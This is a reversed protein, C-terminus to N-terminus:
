KFSKMTQLPSSIWVAADETPEQPPAVAQLPNSVVKEESFLWFTVAFALVCCGVSLALLIASSWRLAVYKFTIIKDLYIEMIKQNSYRQRSYADFLEDERIEYSESYALMLCVFSLLGLLTAVALLIRYSRLHKRLRQM